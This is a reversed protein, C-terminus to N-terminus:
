PKQPRLTLGDPTIITWGSNTAVILNTISNVPWGGNTHVEVWESSLAFKQVKSWNPLPRREEFVRPKDPANITWTTVEQVETTVTKETAPIFPGMDAHPTHGIAYHYKAISDCTPCGKQNDTTVVNTVITIVAYALLNTLM